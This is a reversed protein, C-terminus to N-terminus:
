ATGDEIENRRERAMERCLAALREAQHELANLEGMSLDSMHERAAAYDPPGDELALLANAEVFPTDM